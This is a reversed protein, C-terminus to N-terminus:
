PKTATAAEGCVDPYYQKVLEYADKYWTSSPANHGLVALYAHAQSKLQLAISCEIVRYLAEHAYSTSGYNKVVDQYRKIAALHQNNAQYTRGIDMEKGALHDQLMFTKIHADKAYPTSAFRNIVEQFTGLADETVKQDRQLTPIQEFYCLGLLYYAYGIDQHGPHLQLFVQLTEVADGYSKAAYFSYASMLQAKVAWNAYPHQREVEAFAKAANRYDEKEFLDYAKNYLDEVPLEVYEEKEACSTLLVALFVFLGAQWFRTM